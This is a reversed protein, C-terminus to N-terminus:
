NKRKECIFYQENSCVHDNWKMDINASKKTFFEMCFENINRGHNPEGPAWDTFVDVIKKLDSVWRYAKPKDPRFQFGGIWIHDEDKKEMLKEISALANANEESSKITLLTYKKKRCYDLADFWNKKIRSIYIDKGKFEQKDHFDALSFSVYSLFLVVLFHIKM